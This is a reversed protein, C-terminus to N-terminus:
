VSCIYTHGQYNSRTLIHTYRHYLFFGLKVIVTKPAVNCTAAPLRNIVAASNIRILYRNYWELNSFRDAMIFFVFYCEYEFM